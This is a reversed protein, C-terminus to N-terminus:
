VEREKEWGQPYDRPSWVNNDIISVWIYGEFEVRDNIKYSDHSGTPQKFIPITNNAVVELYLSLAIDPLWDSQSTHEQLVKYLRGDFRIRTDKSYKVGEKWEPYIEIRELREEDTLKSDLILFMEEKEKELEEIQIQKESKIQQAVEVIGEVQTSYKSLDKARHETYDDNRVVGMEWSDGVKYLTINVIDAM